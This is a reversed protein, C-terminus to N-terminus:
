VTPAPPDVPDNAHVRDYEEKIAKVVKEFLEVNAFVDRAGQISEYLAQVDLKGDKAADVADKIGIVVAKFMGDVKRKRAEIYAWRIAGGVGAAGAGWPFLVSLLGGLIDFPSTDSVSEPRSEDVDPTAPDDQVAPSYGFIYDSVACGGIGLMFVCMLAVLFKKM